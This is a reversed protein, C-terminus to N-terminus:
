TSLKSQSIAKSIVTYILYAFNAIFIMVIVGVTIDGATKQVDAEIFSGYIFFIMSYHAAIFCLENFEELRNLMPEYNPHAKSFYAFYVTYLILYSMVLWITGWKYMKFLLLILVLLLRRLCSISAYLLQLKTPFFETEYQHYLTGHKRHFEKENLRDRNLILWVASWIIWVVLIFIIVCRSTSNLWGALDDTSGYYYLFFVSDYTLKLNSVILYQFLASYFLKERLKIRLSDLFKNLRAKFTDLVAYCILLIVLGVFVLGFVALSLLMSNSLGEAINYKDDQLLDEPVNLIEM